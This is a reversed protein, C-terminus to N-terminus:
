WSGKFFIVRDQPQSSLSNGRRRQISDQSFSFELNMKRRTQFQAKGRESRLVVEAQRGHHGPLIACLFAHYLSPEQSPQSDFRWAMAVQFVCDM